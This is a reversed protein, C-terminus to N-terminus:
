LQIDEQLGQEKLVQLFKNRSYGSIVEEGIVTLPVDLSGALSILENQVEISENVNKETVAINRIQLFEKIQDCAECDPISYLTAYIDPNVAKKSDLSTKFEKKGIPTSGPPCSTQFSREGRANQCEVIQVDAGSAIAFLSCFCLLPIKVIKNVIM